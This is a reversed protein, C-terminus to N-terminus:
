VGLYAEIVDPKARVSEFPGRTLVRGYAMVVVEDCTQELLGMDHAVLLVTVGLSPLQQIREAILEVLAPHVGATPEDLMLLKPEAMLARAIDLLRRQGGSLTGALQDWHSGLGIWELLAHAREVLEREQRLWSRRGLLALAPNEGLQHQAAVMMNEIVPLRVLERSLQFTRVVGLRATATRGLKTIDRGDFVISGRAPRLGGALVEVLTSKGAGNPGILGTVLGRELVLSCGDLARVGGYSFAVDDVILLPNSNGELVRQGAQAPAQGNLQDDGEPRLAALAAATPAPGSTFGLAGTSPASLESLPAPGVPGRSPPAPRPYFRVREPLIGEPRFRLVLILVCGILVARGAGILSAQSTPLLRTLEDLVEVVLFSGVVGGLNNGTGGIIVSALLIFTETPLWAEPNWASVYDVLLGGGVGAMFCGLLFVWLQARRVDKGFSAAVVEDERIARLVRGYPSRFILSAALYCLALVVVGLGLMVLTYGLNSLALSGTIPPVNILGDSGDFLATENTIVTWLILGVSVTVIALYDSRLRRVAVSVVLLGLFAASAGGVLLGVPWPLSWGLVYQELGREVAPVPGMTTVGTMYAGVAVFTYYTFNLIGAYGYQMNLGIALVGYIAGLSLMDVLTYLM